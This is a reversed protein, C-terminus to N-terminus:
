LRSKTVPVGDIFFSDDNDYPVVIEDLLRGFPLDLLVLQNGYGEAEAIVGYLKEEQKETQEETM